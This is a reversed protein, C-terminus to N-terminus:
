TNTFQIDGKKLSTSPSTSNHLVWSDNKNDDTDVTDDLLLTLSYLFWLVLLQHAGTREYVLYLCQVCQKGESHRWKWLFLDYPQIVHHGLDVMKRFRLISLSHLRIGEHVANQIGALKKM